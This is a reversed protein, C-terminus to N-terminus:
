GVSITLTEATNAVTVQKGLTDAQIRGLAFQIHASQLNADPTDNSFHAWLGADIRVERADCTITWDGAENQISLNAGFPLATEAAQVLLFLLKAVPRPCNDTVRWNATIKRSAFNDSLTKQIASAALLADDPAPGYAIRFFAIRANASQISDSLLEFEPSDGAGTLELLELGNAIAGLPSALDHCIRSSILATLECSSAYM